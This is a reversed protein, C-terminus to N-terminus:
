NVLEQELAPLDKVILDNKEFTILGSQILKKFERSVTERTIGSLSALDKETVKVRISASNEKKGFRRALIVLETVLRSYANGAMLYEMRLFYGDLGRYIRKVLDFVVEPEAKLFDLFESKVAKQVEVKENAEYFYRNGTNNLVWGMPFFAGPKFTNIVVEEGDASIATMKVSGSKIYFVGDPDSEPRILVDGKKFSFRRATQFFDNLKAESVCDM